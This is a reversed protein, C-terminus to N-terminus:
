AQLLYRGNEDDTRISANFDTRMTSSLALWTWMVTM